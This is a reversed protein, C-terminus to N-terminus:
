DKTTNTAIVEGQNRNAKSNQKGKQPQLQIGKHKLAHSHEGMVVLSLSHEVTSMPYITNNQDTNDHNPTKSQHVKRDEHASGPLSRHHYPSCSTSFWILRKAAVPRLPPCGSEQSDAGENNCVMSM